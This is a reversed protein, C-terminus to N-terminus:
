FESGIEKPTSVLVHLTHARLSLEAPLEWSAGVPWLGQCFVSVIFHHPAEQHSGVIFFRTIAEQLGRM